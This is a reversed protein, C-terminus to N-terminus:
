KKFVYCYKTTIHKLSKCSPNNKGKKADSMKKRTEESLTKGFNPHNEGKRGTMPPLTPDKVINYEPVLIDIFHKERKLLEEISCYELIELSFNSNGYKLLAYYIHSRGRTLADEM